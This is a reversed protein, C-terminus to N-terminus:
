LPPCLGREYCQVETGQIGMTACADRDTCRNAPVASQLVITM